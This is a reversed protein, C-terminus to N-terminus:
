NRSTDPHIADAIEDSSMGKCKIRVLDAILIQTAKVPDLSHPSDSHGIVNIAKNAGARFVSKLLRDFGQSLTEIGHFDACSENDANNHKISNTQMYYEKEKVEEKIDQM